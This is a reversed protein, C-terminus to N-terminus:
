ELLKKKRPTAPIQHAKVLGKELNKEQYKKYYKQPKPRRLGPVSYIIEMINEKTNKKSKQHTDARCAPRPTPNNLSLPPILTPILNAKDHSMYEGRRM